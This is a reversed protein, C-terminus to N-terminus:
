TCIYLLLLQDKGNFNNIISLRKNGGRLLTLPAFSSLSFYSEFMKWIKLGLIDNISRAIKKYYM